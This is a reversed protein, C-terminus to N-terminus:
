WFRKPAESPPVSRGANAAALSVKEKVVFAAPKRLHEGDVPQHRSGQHTGAHNLNGITGPLIERVIQIRIRYRDVSDSILRGGTGGTGAIRASM